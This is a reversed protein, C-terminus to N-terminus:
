ATSAGTCGVGGLSTSLYRVPRSIVDPGVSVIRAQGSGGM